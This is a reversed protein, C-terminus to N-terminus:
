YLMVHVFDGEVIEISFLVAECVTVFYYIKETVEMIRVFSISVLYSCTGSGYINKNDFVLWGLMKKVHTPAIGPGLM